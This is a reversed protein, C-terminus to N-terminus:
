PLLFHRCSLTLTKEHQLILTKKTYYRVGYGRIGKSQCIKHLLCQDFEQADYVLRPAPTEPCPILKQWPISFKQDNNLTHYHNM